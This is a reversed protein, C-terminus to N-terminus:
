FKSRKKSLRKELMNKLINLIPRNSGSNKLEDILKFNTTISIMIRNILATFDDVDIIDSENRVYKNNIKIAKRIDNKQVKALRKVHLKKDTIIDTKLKDLNYSTKLDKIKLEGKIIDIIMKMVKYTKIFGLIDM